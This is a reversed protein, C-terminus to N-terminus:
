SSPSFIVATPKETWCRNMVFIIATQKLRNLGEPLFFACMYFLLTFVLFRVVDKLLSVTTINKEKRVEM